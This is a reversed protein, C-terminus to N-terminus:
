CLKKIRYIFCHDQRPANYNKNKASKIVTSKEKGEAGEDEKNQKQNESEELDNESSEQNPADAPQYEVNKKEFPMEVWKQIHQRRKRM